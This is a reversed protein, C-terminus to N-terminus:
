EFSEIFTDLAKQAAGISREYKSVFGDGKNNVIQDRLMMGMNGFNYIGMLDFLVDEYIIELMKVSDDDRAIKANLTVNSM